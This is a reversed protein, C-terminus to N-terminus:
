GNGDIMNARDGFAAKIARKADEKDRASIGDTDVRVVGRYSQVIEIAAELEDRTSRGSIMMAAWDLATGLDAACRRALDASALRFAIGLGTVPESVTWSNGVPSLHIFLDGIREGEV